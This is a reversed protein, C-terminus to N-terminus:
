LARDGYHADADFLDTLTVYIYLPTEIHADADANFLFRVRIAGYLLEQADFWTSM